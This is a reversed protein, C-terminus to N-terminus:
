QSRSIDREKVTKRKSTRAHEIAELCVSEVHKSLAELFESSTNFQANDRVFKRVKSSVILVDSM